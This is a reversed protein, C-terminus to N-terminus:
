LGQGTVEWRKDAAWLTMVQMQNQTLTGTKDSCIVSTSGLTEVSALQRVLANGRAMRQSGMTLVITVVTPLGEPIAAVSLSIGTNLMEILDMGHHIGIGIVGAVVTLAGGILVRSLSDIRRQLPTKPEVASAMLDAIRGVETNMGTAIVVGAGNGATVITSMFALNIRDGLAVENLEIIDTGKDVPESEGTLAAEDVQLRNSEIVRIDAAVIDGTSLRLVEGPVLDSAPVRLWEGDRRVFADPAAMEKLADMSKQAKLEQVFGIVTNILVIVAIAVADVVHGAYLSIGAGLLLVILLPNKFQVVFLRLVSANELQELENPGYELLRKAADDATLGSEPDTGFAQLVDQSSQNFSNTNM